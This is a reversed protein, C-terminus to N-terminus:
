VIFLDSAIQDALLKGAPTLKLVDAEITILNRLLCYEIYAANKKRLDIGHLCTVEKLDCGWKTRLSTLIYENVQDAVSLEEVSAPITANELAKIYKVNNAVNYQRTHGNYSHASPGIGLYTQKKWYNSNHKSYYGPLAFNSIEYQEFGASALTSTLLAFQEISFEEEVPRIKGKRLWNGFATDKEITLCYASIHQIHLNIATHLDTEWVSHDPHPIGYILDISINSFGADQAQKVCDAAEQARHARNMYQLHPEYFSQIGISLRNVPSNKLMNLKEATMDDPNAELTIEAQLAVTFFKHITQFISNLEKEDLLSPTGGGLYITQLTAAKGLYNKQLNIEKCIAEILQQKTQLNTSFHFDCYHCAQKCFPIHIYLGSL